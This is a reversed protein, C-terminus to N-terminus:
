FKYRVIYIASNETWIDGHFKMRKIEQLVEEAVVVIIATCSLIGQCCLEGLEGMLDPTALIGRETWNVELVGKAM